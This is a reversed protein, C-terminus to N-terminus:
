PIHSVRVFEYTINDDPDGIYKYFFWSQKDFKFRDMKSINVQTFFRTGLEKSGVFILKIVWQERDDRAINWIGKENYKKNSFKEFGNFMKEGAIDITEFTNDKKLVFIAGDKSQWKGIFDDDTPVISSNCSIFVIFTLLYLYLKM